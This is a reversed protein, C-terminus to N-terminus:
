IFLLARKEEDSLQIQATIKELASARKLMADAAATEDQKLASIHSFDPKLFMGEKDLGSQQTIDDYTLETEPIITSNYAQKEGMEVNSFTSGKATSDSGFMHQNLGFADIIAIKDANMEEFLMLDKVPFSMPQWTVKKDTIVPKGSNRQMFDNTVQERDKSNLPVFGTGDSVDMGLIGPSFLSQLLSNRKEYQSTLNSIPYKLAHIKGQVDFLNIGDIETLYIVDKISIKDFSGAAGKMPIHFEQIVGNRDMQDISKGTTKIKINNWAIPTMVKRSGFGMKPSYILSNGTVCKNIEIFEMMKGWSQMANPKDILSFIWHGNPDIKNGDKDVVIPNASAVMKARRNIVANLEPVNQYLKWYENTNVWIPAKEGIYQSTYLGNNTQSRFGWSLMSTVFDSLGM